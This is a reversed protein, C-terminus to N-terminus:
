IAFSTIPKVTLPYIGSIGLEGFVEEVVTYAFICSHMEGQRDLEEIVIPCVKHITVINFQQM